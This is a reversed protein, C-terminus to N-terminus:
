RGSRPAARRLPHRGSLDALRRRHRRLASDHVAQLLWHRRRRNRAPGQPYAPLNIQLPQDGLLYNAAPMAMFVLGITFLVQDLASAGYLRRYLTRELAVGVIAPILFAVPLTALFPVGVRNMLLATVYGGLMAFAGHALNIFNMLGLTVALGASLVFLLMGYAVGDLLLTLM